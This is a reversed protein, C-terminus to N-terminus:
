VEDNKVFNNLKKFFTDKILFMGLRFLIVIGIFAVILETGRIIMTFATAAPAGLNLSNFAFAQIVEHSGLSTPIPIMAALYTFSLISLAPLAGISKGLFIILLWARMYMVAARLFSLIVGKWMAKNKFKFFKFTEKEIEIPQNENDKIFFGIMSEKKLCKFYFFSLGALFVLFVGGFIIVLKLPPFGIMLLFFIGGFFIVALNATWELIRDIIVSAMGQSWSVANRKKLVYGQFIEAGIIIIPALYRISFSALYARWIDGFSIKIGIGKLIERWRWAGILAMLFTLLLIIIGQGGTFVLFVKKIEQWGVM